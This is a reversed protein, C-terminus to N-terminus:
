SEKAHMPGTRGVKTPQPRKRAQVGLGMLIGFFLVILIAIMSWNLQRKALVTNDFAVTGSGHVGDVQITTRWEGAASLEVDAEYYLDIPASQPVAEVSIREVEAGNDAATGPTAASEFEVVVTADTVMQQLEASNPSQNSSDDPLMVAVSVHVEGARLPEPQTWVSVLYPGAPENVIRPTGGGHAHVSTITGLLGLAFLGCAVLGIAKGFKLLWTLKLSTRYKALTVGKNWEQRCM